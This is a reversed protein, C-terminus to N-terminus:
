APDHGYREDLDELADRAIILQETITGLEKSRAEMATLEAVNEAIRDKVFALADPLLTSGSIQPMKTAHGGPVSVAEIDRQALLIQM